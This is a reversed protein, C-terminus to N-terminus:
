GQRDLGEQIREKVETALTEYTHNEPYVPKLFDIEIKTWPRPFHSGKPLAKFAGAISVPVIPINLESSLIAFTKKFEGLEGTLTRTGEPFIILSRNQKLVEAMKQISEKLDKNLDVIIINNRSALFKLWRRRIHKEKAYFYTRQMQQNTLYAAVFIGDFSSQHNPALIFPGEPINENGKVRYRFYLHFFIRFSYLLWRGTVWNGPLKLNVKERIIDTWNIRGDEIRTKHEAVYDSLKLVDGFDTMSVPEISVGFNQQLWAQFGVKDLSDMGLDMELHHHPRVKRGKESELYAAILRFEPSVSIIQSTDEQQEVALDSLRFRQLKGLRTRPLEEQTIFFRMLKKYPSVSNNLPEIVEKRFKAETDAHNDAPTLDPNPVIVVQLMDDRFFVGCDKVLPFELLKSEIESPNVNKGNSLIIIEKKRGTIFLFGDKDFYGLDGTYLWGDQLVEATEEPRNFYGKMINPGSALIEGDDIRVKTQNMVEGPSGIKVRGPQTFTIMPAAETMGFGELVEFGLVQFDRGVETDLAAGGSVLFEVSGGLKQHVTNFIKRSFKKSNVKGAIGFLMRAVASKKVKDMIGKRIAAYLRPVGIIITIANNRLTAMIDESAMSPSIAITGGLYLPIVMTGMLPFIHHLPLLVMVKSDPRYIPIFESVAKINTILNLFTLMVGKPSGTTGSTYIIVATDDQGPQPMPKVDTQNNGPGELDDIIIMETKIGALAIAEVMMTQKASSCFVVVPSSDKLIYAVESVSAMFDVPIAIGQRGWVAYFAFVWGPRNESFIVVHEGPKLNFQESFFHIKHHFETYSIKQEGFSIATKNGSTQLMNYLATRKKSSQKYCYQLFIVRNEPVREPVKYYM